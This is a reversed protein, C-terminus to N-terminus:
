ATAQRVPVLTPAVVDRHVGLQTLQWHLCRHLTAHLAALGAVARPDRSHRWETILEQPAATLYGLRAPFPLPPRHPATGPAPPLSRLQCIPRESRTHASNGARPNSTTESGWTSGVFHVRQLPKSVSGLFAARNIHRSSRRFWRPSLSSSFVSQLRWSLAFTIRAPKVTAAITTEIAPQPM